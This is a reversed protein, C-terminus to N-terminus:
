VPADDPQGDEPCYYIDMPAQVFASIPWRAPQDAEIATCLTRLKADGSIALLRFRASHLARGTLTLRPTGDAARSAVCGADCNGDLWGTLGEAHPFLSATHGDVGMGLVVLDLPLWDALQADVQAADAAPTVGRYLPLWQLRPFIAALRSRLLAANSQADSEPVWREDVLTLRVRSWDIAQCALADLFRVPSRGGSLALSAQGREAMATSLRDAVAVALHEAAPVPSDFRKLRVDRQKLRSEIVDM